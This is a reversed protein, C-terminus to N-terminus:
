KNMCFSYGFNLNVSNYYESKKGIYNNRFNLDVFIKDDNKLIYNTGAAITYVLSFLPLTPHGGPAGDGVVGGGFGGKFYFQYDEPMVLNDQLKVFFIAAVTQVPDKEIKSPIFHAVNFEWGMTLPKGMTWEHHFGANFSLSYNDSFDKAAVPIGSGITLGLNTKHVGQSFLLSPLLFFIFLFGAARKLFKRRLKIKKKAKDEM